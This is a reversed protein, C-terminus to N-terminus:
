CSLHKFVIKLLESQTFPKTLYGSAGVLKAKARDIFGTNGTVMIIPTNRFTPHRRLLSCLEYGDLNPMEVDMLVLDPKSRVVQMLARVPDNVMIISFSTDDLFSNIAQLVTPSDDVCVITYQAKQTANNPSRVNNGTTVPTTAASATSVPAKELTPNPYLTKTPAALDPRKNTAPLSPKAARQQRLHEQCFEVLPRLDLRYYSPFEDLKEKEILEYSGEQVLLFSEIVEKALEEILGAVHDPTLHQQEVLWCLARYDACIRTRMEPASEFLLRVQVRVASVLTPVQRSLQRLHRDLREFRDVSYSAYLLEGQDLYLSWVSSHSSVRLCGSIQRSKAQALLSLPHLRQSPKHDVMSITNM